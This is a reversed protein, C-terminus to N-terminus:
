VNEFKPRKRCGGGLKSDNSSFRAVLTPVRARLPSPSAHVLAGIGLDAVDASCVEPRPVVFRASVLVRFLESGPVCM